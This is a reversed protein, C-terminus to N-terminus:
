SGNQKINKIVSNIEEKLNKIKENTSRFQNGSRKEYHGAIHVGYLREESIPLEKAHADIGGDQAGKLFYYIFSDKKLSRNGKDLIAEKVKSRTALLFGTLYAAPINKHSFTWGYKQLDKGYASAVTKDGNDSSVIVQSIINKNTKRVVLRALGSKLLKLRTRYNTRRNNTRM